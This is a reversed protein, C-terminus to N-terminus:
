VLNKLGARYESPTIGTVRKFVNNFSPKSNFGADFAISLLKEDRREPERLLKMVENVRYENVFEYFSKGVKDNIVFSLQNRGTGLHRAFDSLSLDPNLYVKEVDMARRLGVLIEKAETEPLVSRKYKPGPAHNPERQASSSRAAKQKLGRYGLAWVLLSLVIPLYPRAPSFQPVHILLVLFVAYILYLGLILVFFLTIWRLDMGSLNSVEERLAARYVHLRKVTPAFYLAAQALLLAWLGISVLPYPTASELTGALPSMSFATVLLAPLAHLLDRATFRTEPAMLSRVYAAIMPALLFQLPEDLRVGSFPFRFTRISSLFPHLINLSCLVM